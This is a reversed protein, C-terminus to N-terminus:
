WGGRPPLCRASHSGTKQYTGGRKDCDNKAKDASSDGCSSAFAVAALVSLVASALKRGKGM